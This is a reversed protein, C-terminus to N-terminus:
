ELYPHTEAHTHTLTNLGQCGARVATFDRPLPLCLCVAQSMGLFSLQAPTRILEFLETHTTTLTLSDSHTYTRTDTFMLTTSYSLPHTHTATTRDRICM